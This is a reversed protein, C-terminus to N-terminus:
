QVIGAATAPGGNGSSSPTGNGAITYILGTSVNVKRVIYHGNDYIYINGYADTAVGTTNSLLATTAPVGDALSSGGGAATYVAGAQGRVVIHSLILFFLVVSFLSTKKM